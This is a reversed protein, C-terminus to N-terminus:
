ARGIDGIPAMVIRPRFRPDLWRLVTLLDARRLSVCGATSGAGNAHLFIASGLRV